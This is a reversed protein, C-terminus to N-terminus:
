PRDAPDKVGKKTYAVYFISAHPDREDKKLVITGATATYEIKEGGFSATHGTVSSKEETFESDKDKEEADADASKEQKADSKKDEDMKDSQSFTLGAPFTLALLISLFRRPNM